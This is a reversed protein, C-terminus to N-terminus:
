IWFQAVKSQLGTCAGLGNEKRSVKNREQQTLGSCRDVPEGHVLESTFVRPTTLKPVVSPVSLIPDDSLIERHHCLVCMCGLRISYALCESINALSNDSLYSNSLIICIINYLYSTVKTCLFRRICNDVSPCWLGVRNQGKRNVLNCVCIIIYHIYSLKEDINLIHIISYICLCNDVIITM